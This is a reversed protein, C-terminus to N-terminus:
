LVAQDLPSPPVERVPLDGPIVPNEADPDSVEDGDIGLADLSGRRFTPEIQLQRKQGAAIANMATIMADPLPLNTAMDRRVVDGTRLIFFEVHGLRNGLLLM